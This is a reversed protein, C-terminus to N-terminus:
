ARAQDRAAAAAQRRANYLAFMAYCLPNFCFAQLGSLLYLMSILSKDKFLVSFVPIGLAVDDSMTAYLAVMGARAEAM